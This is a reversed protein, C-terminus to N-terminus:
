DIPKAKPLNLKYGDRVRVPEASRISTWGYRNGTYDCTEGILDYLDAVSVIKYVDIIEEMRSLVEEAEGRSSLIIDDIGYLDNRSRSVSGYRHRDNRRDDYYDRYSIKDSTGKRRTRAKGSGGFLVMDLVNTFADWITDKITPIIIDDVLYEKMGRVDEKSIIKEAFKATESKKRVVVKGTTVKDIKLGDKSEPRIARREEM